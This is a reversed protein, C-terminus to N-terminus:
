RRDTRRPAYRVVGYSCNEIIEGTDSVLHVRRFRMPLVLRFERGSLSDPTRSASQTAQSRRM